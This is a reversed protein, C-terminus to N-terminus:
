MWGKVMDNAVTLRSMLAGLQETTAVGRIVILQKSEDFRPDYSVLAYNKLGTVLCHGVAQWGYAKWLEDKDLMYLLHIKSTPCKVELTGWDEGDRTIVGDPSGGVTDSMEFFGCERVAEFEAAEFHAVALPELDIGRQMVASTYSEESEGTMREAAVERLIALQSKNFDDPKQRPSPMLDNFRSCTIKGLRAAYWEESRQKAKNEM